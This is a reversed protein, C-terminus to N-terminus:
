SAIADGFMEISTQPVNDREEVSFQESLLLARTHMSQAHPCFEIEYATLPAFWTSRVVGVEGRELMLEPIDHTLKVIDGVVPPRM